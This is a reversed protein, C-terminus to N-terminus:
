KLPKLLGAAGPLRDFYDFVGQAAPGLARRTRRRGPSERLESHRSAISTCGPVGSGAVGSTSSIGHQRTSRLAARREVDLCGVRWSCATASIATSRPSGSFSRGARWTDLLFSEVGDRGRYCAGGYATQLAPWWELDTTACEAFFADIDRQNYLDVSRKAVHVKDQPM